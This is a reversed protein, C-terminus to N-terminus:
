CATSHRGPAPSMRRRQLVLVSRRVWRTDRVCLRPCVCLTHYSCYYIMKKHCSYLDTFFSLFCLTSSTSQSHPICMSESAARESDAAPKKADDAVNLRVASAPRAPVGILRALATVLPISGPLLNQRLTFSQPRLPAVLEDGTYAVVLLSRERSLRESHLVYPSLVHVLRVGEVEVTLRKGAGLGAM